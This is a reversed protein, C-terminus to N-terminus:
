TGTHKTQTQIAITTALVVPLCSKESKEAFKCTPTATRKSACSSGWHSNSTRVVVVVVCIFWVIAHHIKNTNSNGNDQSFSGTFAFSEVECHVKAHAM